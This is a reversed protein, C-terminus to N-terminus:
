KALESEIKRIYDLVEEKTKHNKAESIRKEAILM